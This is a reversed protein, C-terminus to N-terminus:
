CTFTHFFTSCFPKVITLRRLIVKNWVYITWLVIFLHGQEDVNQSSIYFTVSCFNLSGQFSSCYMHMYMYMYKRSGRLAVTVMHCYMITLKWTKSCFTNVHFKIDHIFHLLSIKVPTFLTKPHTFTPHIPWSPHAAWVIYTQCVGIRADCSCSATLLNICFQM